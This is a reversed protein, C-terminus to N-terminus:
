KEGSIRVVRPTDLGEAIIAKLGLISSVLLGTPMEDSPQLHFLEKLFSTYQEMTLLVSNPYVGQIRDGTEPDKESELYFRNIESQLEELNM